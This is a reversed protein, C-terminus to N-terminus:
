FRPSSAGSVVAAPRVAPADSSATTVAGAVHRSIWANLVYLSWPRSWNTQGIVFNQWAGRVARLNMYQKLEPTLNALDQSIRVGLPGRLWLNWPLTFTRKAQGVVDDPLFLALEGAALRQEVVNGARPLDLFKQILVDDPLLVGLLRQRHRHMIM